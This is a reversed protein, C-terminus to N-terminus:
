GIPRADLIRKLETPVAPNVYWASAASEVDVDSVKAMNRARRTGIPANGASEDEAVLWEAISPMIGARILLVVRQDRNLM